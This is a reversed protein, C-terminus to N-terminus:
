QYSSMQVRRKNEKPKVSEIRVEPVGKTPDSLNRVHSPTLYSMKLKALLDENFGTGVLNYVFFNRASNDRPKFAFKFGEIISKFLPTNRYYSREPEIDGNRIFNDVLGARRLIKLHYNLTGKDMRTTGLLDSWSMEFQLSLRLLIAQRRMDDLARIVRALDEPFVPNDNFSRKKTM